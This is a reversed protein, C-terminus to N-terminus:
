FLVVAVLSVIGLLNSLVHLIMPAQFLFHDMFAEICLLVACVQVFWMASRYSDDIRHLRLRWVGYTIMLMGVFDSLLDIRFGSVLQGNVSHSNSISFDLVCLLGGWFILRLPTILNKLVLM